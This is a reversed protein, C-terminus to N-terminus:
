AFDATLVQIRSLYACVTVRNDVMSTQTSKPSRRGYTGALGAGEKRVLGELRRGRNQHDSM